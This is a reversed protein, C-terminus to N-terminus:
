DDDIEIDGDKEHFITAAENKKVLKNFERKSIREQELVKGQSDVVQLHIPFRTDAAFSVTGKTQAPMSFGPKTLIKKGSVVKVMQTSDTNNHIMLKHMGNAATQLNGAPAYGKGWKSTKENVDGISRFQAKVSLATVLLAITLVPTILTKKM